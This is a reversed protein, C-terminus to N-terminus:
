SWWAACRPLLNRALRLHVGVVRNVVQSLCVQGAVSCLVYADAETLGTSAAWTVMDETAIRVAEALNAGLGVTTLHETSTIRPYRLLVGPALRLRVRLVDLDCEIATGNLEGNGQAAHGDGLYLLGGARQVPLWVTSGPVADAIDLNGGFTGPEVSGHPQPAAPAVGVFGPFPRIPLRLDGSSAVGAVSDIDFHRLIGDPFRDALVGRSLGHPTALNFGHTGPRAEIIEVGLADGPRAGEVAIPGTLTHPGVGPYAARLRLVDALTHEPTVRGAWLGLTGTVVEDGASVRLVPPQGGGFVGVHASM